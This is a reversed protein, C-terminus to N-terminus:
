FGDELMRELESDVGGKPRPKSAKNMSSRTGSDDAARQAKLRAAIQAFKSQGGGTSLKNQDKKLDDSKEDTRQSTPDNGTTPNSTKSLDAQTDEVERPQQEKESTVGIVVRNNTRSRSIPSFGSSKFSASLELGRAVESNDLVNAVNSFSSSEKFTKDEDHTKQTTLSNSIPEWGGVKKFGSGSFTTTPLSSSSSFSKSNNLTPILEKSPRNINTELRIGAASALRELEKAERRREKELRAEAPLGGGRRSQKAELARRAHHHAYSREHEEFQRITTYGKDCISCYFSKLRDGREEERLQVVRVKEERKLRDEETEHAIVISELEKSKSITNDLMYSDQTSKGLGLLPTQTPTPVPSKKGSNNAGLGTGEKWGM